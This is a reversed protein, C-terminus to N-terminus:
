DASELRCDQSPLLRYQYVPLPEVEPAGYVPALIDSNSSFVLTDGRWALNFFGYPYASITECGECQRRERLRELDILTFQGHGEGANEILAAYRRSDSVLIDITEFGNGPSDIREIGGESVVFLLNRESSLYRNEATLFCLELAQGGSGIAVCRSQRALLNPGAGSCSVVLLLLVPLLYKM